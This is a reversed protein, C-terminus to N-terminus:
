IKRLDAIVQRARNDWTHHANILDVVEGIVKKRSAQVAIAHQYVEDFEDACFSYYHKRDEFFNHLGRGAGYALRTEKNDYWFLLGGSALCDIARFHFGVGDHLNIRSQQHVRNMQNPCDLFCKYYAHYNPWQSWNTSGYIVIPEKTRLAFNLLEHRNKLRKSREMLDYYIGQRQWADTSAGHHSALNDIINKLDKHTLVQQPLQALENQYKILLEGFSLQSDALQRSLEEDSWPLPIHGIFNFTAELSQPEALPTFIRACTGPPLWAQLGGTRYNTDWGPDFFYTIESGKIQDETRGQFDVIWSVHPLKLEHLLPIENKVRNMEFVADPRHQKLWDDLAAESLLGCGGSVRVDLRAFAETWSQFLRRYFPTDVPMFLALHKITM